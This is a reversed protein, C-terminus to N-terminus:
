PSQQLKRSVATRVCEECARRMGSGTGRVWMSSGDVLRIHTFCRTVSGPLATHYVTVYEVPPLFLELPQFTDAAARLHPASTGPSVRLVLGSVVIAFCLLVLLTRM